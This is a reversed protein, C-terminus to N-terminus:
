RFKLKPQLDETRGRGRRRGLLPARYTVGFGLPTESRRVSSLAGPSGAGRRVSREEPSVPRGAAAEAPRLGWGAVEGLM